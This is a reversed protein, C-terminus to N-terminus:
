NEHSYKKMLNKLSKKENFLQKKYPTNITKM